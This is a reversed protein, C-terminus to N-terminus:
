RWQDIRCKYDPEDKKYNDGITEKVIISILSPNDKESQEIKNIEYIAKPTEPIM